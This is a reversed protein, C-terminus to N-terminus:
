VFGKVIISKAYERPTMGTLKKFQRSFYHISSYGLKEAIQTVNLKEERILRKAENIKLTVFYDIISTGRSLKFIHILWTKSISFRTSLDDLKINNYINFLLFNMIDDALNEPTSQIFSSKNTHSLDISHYEDILKLLFIELSNKFLQESIPNPNPLVDIGTSYPDGFPSAFVKKAEELINSLLNVSKKSPKLVKGEFFRMIEYDCKFTIVMLNPAIRGNAWINHFENPKHFIIEGQHLVLGTRDAMVEIEGKDCYQFEWFDHTEGIFVFDKSFEMYHITYITDINLIKRLTTPKFESM